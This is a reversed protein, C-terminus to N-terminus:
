YSPLETQGIIALVTFIKELDLSDVREFFSSLPRDHPYIGAVANIDERQEATLSSSRQNVVSSVRRHMAALLSAAAAKGAERQARQRASAVAYRESQAINENSAREAFYVGNSGGAVGFYKANRSSADEGTPVYAFTLGRNTCSSFYKRDAYVVSHKGDTLQQVKENLFSLVEDADGYRNNMLSNRYPFTGYDTRPSLTGELLGDVIITLVGRLGPALSM